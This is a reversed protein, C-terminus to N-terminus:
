RDSRWIQYAKRTLAPTAATNVGTAARDTTALVLFADPRVTRDADIQTLTWGECIVPREDVGIGPRRPLSIVDLTTTWGRCSTVRIHSSCCGSM